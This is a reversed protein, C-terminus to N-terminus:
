TTNRAFLPEFDEPLGQALALCGKHTSVDAISSLLVMGDVAKWHGNMWREQSSM